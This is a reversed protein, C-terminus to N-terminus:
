GLGARQRLQAVYEKAKEAKPVEKAKEVRGRASTSENAISRKEQQRLLMQSEPTGINISRAEMAAQRAIDQLDRGVQSPDDKLRNFRTLAFDKLMANSMVDEFETAMMRNVRQRAEQFEVDQVTDGAHNQQPAQQQQTNLRKLVLDAVSEASVEPRHDLGTLIKEIAAEADSENGSFIGNVISKVKAKRDAEPEASGESSPPTREDPKKGRQEELQKRQEAVEAEMRRARLLAQNAEASRISAGRVAQYAELGGARDIDAQPIKYARGLIVVDVMQNALEPDASKKKGEEEAKPEREVKSGAGIIEGDQVSDIIAQSEPDANYDQVKSRASRAKEIIDDRRSKMEDPSQPGQGEGESSPTSKSNKKAM